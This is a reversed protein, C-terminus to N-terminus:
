VQTISEISSSVATLASNDLVLPLLTGGVFGTGRCGVGRCKVMAAALVKMVAYVPSKVFFLLEMLVVRCRIVVMLGSAVDGVTAGRGFVVVVVGVVPSRFGMVKTGAVGGGFGLVAALSMGARGCGPGLVGVVFGVGSGVILGSGGLLCGTKRRDLAAISPAETGM